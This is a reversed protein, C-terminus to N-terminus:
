QVCRGATGLGDSECSTEMVSSASTAVRFGIACDAVSAAACKFRARASARSPNVGSARTSNSFAAVSSDSAAHLESARWCASSSRLMRKRDRQRRRPVDAQGSRAVRAGDQFIVEIRTLPRAIARVPVPRIHVAPERPRRLERGVTRQIGLEQWTNEHSHGHGPWPGRIERDSHDTYAATNSQPRAGDRAVFHRPSQGAGCARHRRRGLARAPRTSPASPTHLPSGCFREGTAPSLTRDEGRRAGCSCQSFAGQSVARYASRALSTRMCKSCDASRSRSMGVASSYM